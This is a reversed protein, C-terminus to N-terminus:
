STSCKWLYLCHLSRIKRTKTAAPSSSEPAADPLIANPLDSAVTPVDVPTVALCPGPPCSGVDLVAKLGGRAPAVVQFPVKIKRFGSASVTVAYQGSPLAVRVAGDIGAHSVMTTSDSEFVVESDPITAGTLDVVTVKIESLPEASQAQSGAILLFVGLATAAATLCKTLRIAMAQDLARALGGM